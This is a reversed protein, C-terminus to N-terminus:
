RHRHNGLGHPGSDGKRPSAVECYIRQLVKRRLGDEPRTSPFSASLVTVAEMRSVAFWRWGVHRGLEDCGALQYAKLVDLNRMDCGYVYPEIIRFYHRYYVQVLHRREIAEYIDLYM